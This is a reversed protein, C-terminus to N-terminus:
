AATAKAIVRRADELWSMEDDTFGSEAAEARDREVLDKLAALLEPAAAILQANAEREEEAFEDFTEGFIECIITDRACIYIEGTTQAQEEDIRWPAPTHPQTM